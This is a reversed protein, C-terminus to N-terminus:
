KGKKRQKKAARSAFLDDLYNGTGRKKATQRETSAADGATMTGRVYEQLTTTTSEKTKSKTKKGSKAVSARSEQDDSEDHVPRKKQMTSATPNAGLGGSQTKNGTNNRANKGLMQKRLTETAANTSTVALGSAGNAGSYGVGGNDSYKHANRVFDKDREIESDEDEAPFTLRDSFAGGTSLNTGNTTSSLRQIALAARQAEAHDLVITNAAVETQSATAPPRSTLTMTVDNRNSSDLLSPGSLYQLLHLNQTM